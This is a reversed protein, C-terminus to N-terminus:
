YEYFYNAGHNLTCNLRYHHHHVDDLKIVWAFRWLERKESCM